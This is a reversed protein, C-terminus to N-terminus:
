ALKTSVVLLSLLVMMVLSIVPARVMKWSPWLDTPIPKRLLMFEILPGSRILIYIGIAFPILALADFFQNLQQLFQMTTVPAEKWLLQITADPAVRLFIVASTCLVFSKYLNIPYHLGGLKYTAILSKLTNYFMVLSLMGLLLDGFTSLWYLWFSHTVGSGQFVGVMTNVTHIDM